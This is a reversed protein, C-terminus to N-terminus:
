GEVATRGITKRMVPGSAQALRLLFRFGQRALFQGSSASEANRRSISVAANAYERMRSEYAAIAEVPSLEGHAAETLLSTLVDADRLATNAGVGAMPTMNHIADGVLTINSPQWADLHPMSRLQIPSITSLDVDRVLKTLSPSWSETGALALDRLEAHSLDKINSPTEQKPVVYAWVVYHDDEETNGETRRGPRSQWASVFMWGKGHPVINNLSGNTLSMPLEAIREKNLIYRGAIALIGLDLRKLHPLYQQRVQSHSGEAGVLVDGDESSGDDFYARVRGNELQEYHTFVKNWRMLPADETDLGSLLIERLELRGIGRREIDLIPKGSLVADDREALLGLDTDRFYLHTGATTSVHQFRAWDSPSLCTRLAKRGDFNIHIGYGALNDGTRAQREFVVVDIGNKRLGQALCLGGIGAGIVIVRM